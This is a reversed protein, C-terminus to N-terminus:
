RRRGRAEPSPDALLLGRLYYSLSYGARKAAKEFAARERDELAILVRGEEELLVLRAYEALSLRSAEARQKLQKLQEATLRITLRQEAVERSSPDM